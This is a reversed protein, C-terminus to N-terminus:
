KPSEVTYGRAQLAALYSKSGLVDNMSLMAVSSANGALAREAATLWTALRRERMGQFAPNNKAFSSSFVADNCTDEREAFDLNRIAALDGNAWANARTRMADMDGEFRELTKTFCAVDQMQSKKFDALARGPSDIEITFGTKTTKVDHRRAIKEIQERVEGSRVLGNKRLGAEMLEEAAFIPRYREVGDEDGIYKGKLAQWRAYVDDPVVDHLKAGDPNKKMGIMAPLVTLTGIWSTGIAAFPPLLVEQSQAVLREVRGADWQMKQPLPSYLGFVWLVHEGKSVKWLGPGPRRGSVLVQQAPAEAVVDAAAPQAVPQAAVVAPVATTAAAPQVGDQALAPLALLGFSLACLSRKSM